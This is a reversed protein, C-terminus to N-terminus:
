RKKQSQNDMLKALEVSPWSSIFGLLDLQHLVCLWHAMQVKPSGKEIEVLTNRGIGAVEALEKQTMGKRKRIDAILIGTAYTFELVPRPLSEPTIERM